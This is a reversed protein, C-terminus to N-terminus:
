FFWSMSLYATAGALGYESPLPRDFTILDDGFGFLLGGIVSAEESASYSVSPSLLVSRDNLNWLWLGAAGWLPHLQYSVQLVTEDRGLVQLEGRMYPESLFVSLYDEAGGVGFGDHQYEAVVFLDRGGVQVLRDVGIAGRFVVRGAVDRVVVEGRVALSDIAGTAAAAGAIDGYLVGGWGSFEWNNATMLGRGLATLEEGADTKTPRVVFDVESLATPNIRMRAADVGARFERFPDGPSFPSFPDAPTLFLTTGWSVAQRGVSLEVVGTPSWGMRLRDLRHEWRLQEKEVITQQLDFWGGRSTGVGVGLGVPTPRHRLTAAHEYTVEFTFDKLVPETTLRFRNFSSLNSDSLATAGLALPVSQVYGTVPLQAYLRGSLVLSCAILLVTQSPRRVTTTL